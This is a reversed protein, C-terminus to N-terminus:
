FLLSSAFFHNAQPSTCWKLVNHPLSFVSSLPLHRSPLDRPDLPLHTDDLKHLRMEVGDGDGAVLITRGKRPGLPAGECPFKRGSKLCPVPLSSEQTQKKEIAKLEFYDKHWLPVNQPPTNQDGEIDLM